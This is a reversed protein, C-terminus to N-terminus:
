GSYGRGERDGRMYDATTVPPLLLGGDVFLTRGTVYSADDSALFLAAAAIEDPRGTRRLPIIPAAGEEEERYEAREADTEAVKIYGPAICNVRVGYRSLDLAMSETLRMIAAKAVGYATDNPWVHDGHVSSINVIAGGSGREAIHRAAAQGYLFPATVCLDQTYVWDELTLHLFADGRGGGANNVLIDLHGLQRIAGAVVGACTDLDTMEAHMVVARRGLAKIQEAAARAGDERSRWTFAVDAGERAFALATAKGIGHSGGTILATRGLLRM